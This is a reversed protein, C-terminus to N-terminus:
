NGKAWLAAGLLGAKDGLAALVFEVQDVPALHVRQHVFRRMPDLLLEGAASVGGGFVVRQPGITLLTNAVAMGLYTGAQEFLARAVADGERAAQLVV